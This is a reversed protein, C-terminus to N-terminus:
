NNVAMLHHVLELLKTTKVKLTASDGTKCLCIEFVIVGKVKTIEWKGKLVVHSHRKRNSGQFKAWIDQWSGTTLM